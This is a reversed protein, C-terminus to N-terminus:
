LGLHKETLITFTYGKNKAWQEAAAWKARNKIYEAQKRLLGKTQKKAIPPKTQISPKIEILFKQTKGEKDKITINNDVFYRSINGTLPNKYPIIISESGWSVVNPNHDAWRMFKIEYSSRYIIPHTGKYKNPNAPKFIGQKFQRTRKPRQINV